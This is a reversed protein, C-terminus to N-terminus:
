GLLLLGCYAYGVVVAAVFALLAMEAGYESKIRKVRAKM